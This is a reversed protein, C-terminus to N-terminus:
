RLTADQKEAISGGRLNAMDIPLALSFLAFLYNKQRDRPLINPVMVM